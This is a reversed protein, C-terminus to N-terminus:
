AVAQRFENIDPSRPKNSFMIQRFRTGDIHGADLIALMRRSCEVGNYKKIANVPKPNGFRPKQTGRYEDRLQDMYTEFTVHGIRETRRARMAVASPTVKMLDAADKVSQLDPFRMTRMEDIPMLIEAAIDYERSSSLEKTHGDYNVPSFVGRAVLVTMLTLTFLRRGAPEMREGEDGSALFIFPAKRDKLALGSFNVHSPVNQPMFHRASQAVFVQNAELRGIFYELAASKKERRRMETRVLDIAAAVRGADEEVQGRSGKLLGVLENTGLRSDYQRLLAQKRLLDKVILEIDRLHVSHRANASFSKKTFGSMLKERKLRIQAEVVDLPAFFLPYPIEAERALALFTGFALAKGDLASTVGARSAVVSDSFLANFVEREISIQSRSLTLTVTM